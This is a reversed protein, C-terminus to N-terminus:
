PTEEGWMRSIYAWINAVSRDRMNVVTKPEEVRTVFFQSNQWLIQWLMSQIYSLTTIKPEIIHNEPDALEVIGSVNPESM